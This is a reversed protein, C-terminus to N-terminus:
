LVVRLLVVGAFVIILLMISDLRDFLGGHGPILSSSDKVGVVRKIKSELLDGLTAAVALPVTVLVVMALPASVDGFSYIYCVSIFVALAIGGFFGSWTKAPSISPCLKPGKVNCGVLMGGTDNAFAIFLLWYLGVAGIAEELFAASVVFLTIYFPAFAKVLPYPEDNHKASFYTKMCVLVVIFTFVGLALPTKLMILSCVALATNIISCVTVRNNVMKDWEWVLVSAVAVLMIDFFPYSFWIAGFVVPLMIFASIIRQRM